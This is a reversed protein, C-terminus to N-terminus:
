EIMPRTIRKPYFTVVRQPQPKRMSERKKEFNSFMEVLEQKESLTISSECYSHIAFKCPLCKLIFKSQLELGCKTCDGDIKTGAVFSVPHEHDETNRVDGFKINIFKYVLDEHSSNVGQESKLILPACDPHISQSCESCHYFWKTPNLDEECVECFYQGKHNEIPSYSLKLPHKDYKHRITKPLYMACCVHLYKTNPEHTWGSRYSLDGKKIIYRCADCERNKAVNAQRFKGEPYREHKMWRPLYACHIDIEGLPCNDSIYAFGNCPLGCIKCSFLSCSQRLVYKYQNYSIEPRLRACWEHLIFNSCEAYDQSCKYFPMSTVPRVCGNCLLKVRKMPDHLPVSKVGLTDYDSQNHILVLPHQHGFHKIYCSENTNEDFYRSSHEKPIHLPLINYSEDSLPCYMIANGAYGESVINSESNVSIKNEYEQEDHLLQRDRIACDVHVYFMCKSCKYLWYEKYIEKKCIRCECDYVQDLFSYSLTLMHSRHSKVLLKIPSSLCDSNVLFNFCTACHYFGGEHKEGCACKSLIPDASVSILPHPHGPHHITIQELFTACRLDLEYNCTSCHYCIGDQHDTLCASCQWHITRKKLILIHAHHAPSQLTTSLEACFKHLSYNCSMNSCKYYYRNFWDIEQGCRDCTCKFMQVTILDKDEFDDDDEIYGQHMFQLDILNLPHEHQIEELQVEKFDM